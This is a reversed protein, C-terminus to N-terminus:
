NKSNQYVFTYLDPEQLWQEQLMAYLYGGLLQQVVCYPIGWISFLLGKKYFQLAIVRLFSLKTFDFANKDVYVILGSHDRDLLSITVSNLDELSTKDLRFLRCFRISDSSM